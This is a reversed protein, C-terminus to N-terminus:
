LSVVQEVLCNMADQVTGRRVNAIHPLKVNRGKVAELVTPLEFMGPVYKTTTRFPMLKFLCTKDFDITVVFIVVEGQKVFFWTRELDSEDLIEKAGVELTM